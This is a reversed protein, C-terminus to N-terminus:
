QWIANVFCNSQLRMEKLPMTVQIAANKELGITPFANYMGPISIMPIYLYM